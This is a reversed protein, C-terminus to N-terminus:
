QSQKVQEDLSEIFRVISTEKRIRLKIKKEKKVYQIDNIFDPYLNKLSKIGKLPVLRNSDVLFYSTTETFEVGVKQSSSRKKKKAVLLFNSGDYLVEFFGDNSAFGLKRFQHKGLTFSELDDMKIAVGDFRYADPHKVVLQEKEIDFLMPIEDYRQGAITVNGKQWVRQDFYQHTTTGRLATLYISNYMLRNTEEGVTSDYWIGFVNQLSDQDFQCYANQFALLPIM